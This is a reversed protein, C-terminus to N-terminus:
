VLYGVLNCECPTKGRERDREKKNEFGLKKTDSYICGFVQHFAPPSFRAQFGNKPRSSAKMTNQKCNVMLLLSQLVFPGMNMVLKACSTCQGWDKKKKGFWQRDGVWCNTKPWKFAMNLKAVFCWQLTSQFTLYCFCKSIHFVHWSLKHQELISIATSLQVLTTYVNM